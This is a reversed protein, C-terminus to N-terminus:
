SRQAEGAGRAAGGPLMHGGGKDLVHPAVVPNQALHRYFQLVAHLGPLSPGANICVDVLYKGNGAKWVQVILASRMQNEARLVPEARVKWSSIAHWEYGLDKLTHLTATMLTAADLQAEMGLQWPCEALASQPTNYLTVNREGPLPAFKYLPGCSEQDYLRAIQSLEEDDYFGPEAIRRQDLPLLNTFSSQKSATDALLNYSIEESPTLNTPDEVKIGHSEMQRLIDPNFIRDKEIDPLPVSLYEPLDKSFWSHKRVQSFTIRRTPDVVLMHVILDKAESSLHGPLTFNGHKIKRFLNPVNEDDFPLSGCLLAYLVVGCSWIDVEPGVYAKGSVVEPSAYNPSGCSTKLFEGDKMSNSLGFDAVKVHLNSDLLINEPKLDRHTVMRDHCFEIASLIQQFFRRAEDERLRLKHVIHDFLEGGSVYEMVMFLDSPTDVVEYLRVIHPHRLFLLIHIERRTKEYMNMSEMKRKNIIKIAVDQGSPIHLAKKVKGFTGVGRTQGLRYAGVEIGNPM